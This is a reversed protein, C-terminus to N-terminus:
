PQAKFSYPCIEYRAIRCKALRGIARTTRVGRSYGSDRRLLAHISTHRPDLIRPLAEMGSTRAAKACCFPEANRSRGIPPIPSSGTFGEKYSADLLQRSSRATATRRCVSGARIPGVAGSPTVPPRGRSVSRSM